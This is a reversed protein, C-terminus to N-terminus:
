KGAAGGSTLVVTEEGEVSEDREEWKRRPTSINKQRPKNGGMDGADEHKESACM